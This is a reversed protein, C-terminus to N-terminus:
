PDTYEIKGGNSKAMSELRENVAAHREEHLIKNDLNDASADGDDSYMDNYVRNFDLEVEVEQIAESSGKYKEISKEINDLLSQKIQEETKQNKDTTKPNIYPAMSGTVNNSSIDAEKKAIHIQTTFEKSIENKTAKIQLNLEAVGHKAALRVVDGMNKPTNSKLEAEFAAVDGNAASVTVGEQLTYGKSKLGELSAKVIKDAQSSGGTAGVTFDMNWIKKNLSKFNANGQSSRKAVYKELKPKYFEDGDKM